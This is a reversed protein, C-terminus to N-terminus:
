ARREWVSKLCAHHLEMESWCGGQCEKLYICGKCPDRFQRNERFRSFNQKWIQSFAKDRINGESYRNDYVNHCGLVEGDPLISCRTLGAGCFFPKGVPRGNFYGLYSCSEALDIILDRHHHHRIFSVIYELIQHDVHYKSKNASRGVHAIPAIHWRNAASGKILQYLEELQGINERHLITNIMRTRVGLRGFLDLAKMVKSFSNSKRMKDHYEPLGDISTFYLFYDFQKLQDWLRDVLYSNTVLGFSMRKQKAHQMIDMLDGRVLPEGGSIVLRKVGMKALDDIFAIAEHTTLENEAAQGASAECFPCFFNCQYTALWQVFSFPKLLNLKHLLLCIDRKLRGANEIYYNNVLPFTRLLTDAIEILM